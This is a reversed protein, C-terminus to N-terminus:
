PVSLAVRQTKLAGKELVYSARADTRQTCIFGCRQMVHESASNGVACSSVLRNLGIRAFAFEIMLGAAETAFGRGWFRRRIFWGCDGEGANSITFGVDGVIEKSKMEVIAFFYRLRPKARQQDVADRLSEESQARTKPLGTAFRACDPDSQWEHYAEIDTLLHERIEVRMVETTLFDDPGKVTL